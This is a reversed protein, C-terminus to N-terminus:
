ILSFNRGSLRYKPKLELNLICVILWVLGIAYGALVDTPWHVGLYLRSFGIALILVITLASIQKEWQPFEKALIYGIFGYIVMSVMAHGSPFSHFGVNVLRDWLAPRARGFLLKLLYNLGVASATAIALKTTEPRRQYLLVIEVWLCISVLALPEGLFTVGVMLRDLLPTHLKQIALLIATDLGYRHLLLSGWACTSVIWAVPILQNNVLSLPKQAPAPALKKTKEQGINLNTQYKTYDLVINQLLLAIANASFDPHFIVLVNGTLPNARFQTVIEEQSLRLELYRKCAQSHHLGSIKYRARGQVATHIARILPNEHSLNNFYTNM